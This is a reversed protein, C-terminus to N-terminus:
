QQHCKVSESDNKGYEEGRRRRKEAKRRARAEEGNREDVASRTGPKTPAKAAFVPVVSRGAIVTEIPERPQLLALDEVVRAFIQGHRQYCGFYSGVFSPSPVKKKEESKAIDDHTPFVVNFIIHLDGVKPRSSSSYPPTFVPM